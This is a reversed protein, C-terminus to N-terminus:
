LLNGAGSFFPSPAANYTMIVYYYAMGERSRPLLQYLVTIYMYVVELVIFGLAFKRSFQPLADAALTHWTWNKKYGVKSGDWREM